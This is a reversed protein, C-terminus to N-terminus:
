DTTQMGIISDIIEPEGGVIDAEDNQVVVCDEIIPKCHLPRRGEIAHMVIGSQSNATILCHLLHPNSEEFLEIGHTENDMIRCNQMSAHSATGLIGISGARLTLGALTCAATNESLTVVPEKPDGQIITGGIYYSDNPDVSRLTVDKDLFLSEQYIGPEIVIEDGPEALAIACDISDFQQGTRLNEIAMSCACALQTTNLDATDYYTTCIYDHCNKLITTPNLNSSAFAKKIGDGVLILSQHRSYNGFEDFVDGSCTSNINVIRAPSSCNYDFDTWSFYKIEQGISTKFYIMSQKVDIIISWQTGNALARGLINFGYQVPDELDSATCNEIMDAAKVFRNGSNIPHTGGFGEYYSINALENEYTSNCLVPYPMASGTHIVTEGNLFEIAACNGQADAAFFHWDWGDLIIEDIHDLVEQVTCYNDLQYQIWQMMFMNPIHTSVPFQTGSLTMERIYLGVENLGGEPFERCLPTFSISGYKSTWEKIPSINISNQSIERWTISSKVVGRNNKTIYGSTSSSSDLSQGIIFAADKQLMFTSCAFLVNPLLLSLIISKFTNM